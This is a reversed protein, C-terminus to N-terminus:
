MSAIDLWLAHDWVVLLILITTGYWGPPPLSIRAANAWEVAFHL